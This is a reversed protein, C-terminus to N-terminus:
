KMEKDLDDGMLEIEAERYLDYYKMAQGVEHNAEDPLYGRKELIEKMKDFVKKM